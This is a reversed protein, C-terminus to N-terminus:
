NWPKSNRHKVDLYGQFGTSHRWTIAGERATSYVQVQSQQLDREISEPLARGYCIAVEPNVTNLLADSLEDGSWVLVQSQLISGAKALHDQLTLSLAPLLLWSQDSTTLRLIPNETGLPQVTLHKLSTSQGVKLQQYNDTFDLVPSTESNGYLTLSPVSRLLSQWGAPYDPALPPAIATEIQHIGAQQLFPNVTYFATKESGSNVLTTHGHDQMIWVLENGAALVTIQHQTLLRWGMPLLLLGLFGVPWLKRLRTSYGGGIGGLLFTYLGILQWISIQGIAIASGPLQSGTHALWLLGQAPYQLLGAILRALPPSVLALASSSIGGLSVLTVLPTAITNLAISLGSITNFHYLMLPVTWLTAATPVVVLGTLTVPLWDLARTLVPVMVILGFTAAASLQFGIDWIWLPNVLLMLTVALLLAGVPKVKRDTALGILAAVGMLGARVVSAQLGTLTIYGGLVILGITLQLKGSRSRLGALVTGLLLSVHFGSAAITHALGVQSFLDQIDFPLDVAKRGLAMASVLQGLPSGLAQVQTRVLRQRVRWLGWHSPKSFHLEEAVFGTFTHQKALYAQFDFGNPNRAEQPLYLQGKATLTQGIHLGTTQLLPATVYLRGQASIQFTINGEADEVELRNVAVRFRGKLGRNLRPEDIVRGSVIHVPAIAQAREVYTNIDHVSLHPSRLAIYLTALLSVAALGCWRRVSIGLKWRRPATVAFMLTLAFLSLGSVPLLFIGFQLPAITIGTSLLGVIYAVCLVVGLSITM